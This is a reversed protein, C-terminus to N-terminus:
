MRKGCLCISKWVDFDMAHGEDKVKEAEDAETVVTPVPLRESKVPIQSYSETIKSNIQNSMTRVGHNETKVSEPTAKISRMLDFNGIHSPKVNEDQIGSLKSEKPFKGILQVDKNQMEYQNVKLNSAASDETKEACLGGSTQQSLVEKSKRNNIVVKGKPVTGDPFQVHSERYQEKIRSLIAKVGGAEESM